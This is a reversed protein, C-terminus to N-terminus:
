NPATLVLERRAPSQSAELTRVESLGAKARAAVKIFPLSERPLRQTRQTEATFIPRACEVVASVCLVCLNRLSNRTLLTLKM